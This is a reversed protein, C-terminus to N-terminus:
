LVLGCWTGSRATLLILLKTPNKAGQTKSESVERRHLFEFHYPQFITQLFHSGCVDRDSQGQVQSCSLRWIGQMLKNYIFRHVKVESDQTQSGRSGCTMVFAFM